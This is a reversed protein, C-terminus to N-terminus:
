GVWNELRLGQVREFEGVNNSVLTCDDALAHCTIWLANSGVPTGAARLRTFQM